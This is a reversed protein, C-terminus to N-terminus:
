ALTVGLAYRRWVAARVPDDAFPGRDPDTVGRPSADMALGVKRALDWGHVEAIEGQALGFLQLFLVSGHPTDIKGLDPDPVCLLGHLRSPPAPRLSGGLDLVHGSDLLAQEFLVHHGLAQLMRVPWAPPHTEDAGRPIRFTLEFGFGSRDPHPSSKEFLETLGYTVLHWHAPESAEFAVVAPLPAAAEREYPRQSAFQHPTQGPYVRALAADLAAWGPARVPYHESPSM